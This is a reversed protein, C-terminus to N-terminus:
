INWIQSYAVQALFKGRREMTRQDWKAAKTLFPDMPVRHKRLIKVKEAFTKQGLEANVKEPVFLLNGLMGATVWEALDDRKAEPWLHEITYLDGDVERPLGYHESLNRLIYRILARDRTFDSFFYLNDFGVEFETQRPIRSELKEKIEKTVSSFAQSNECHSVSQALKAYMNAIGGGGRSSTIANFQFAFKEIYSVTRKVSALKIKGDNYATM